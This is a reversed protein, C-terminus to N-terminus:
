SAAPEQPPVETDQDESLLERLSVGQLADFLFHAIIPLWLSGTLVYLAGFGLGVAGCNLVGKPGQYSHALGFVVSSAIVAPWLPMLLSFYWIVFGRYVIEEVVGATASVGTFYKLERDTHPLYAKMDGLGEINSAREEGGMKKIRQHVFILYGIMPALFAAGMWFGRGGPEVFGLDAFPRALQVWAALLIALFGWEWLITERYWKVRDLPKGAAIDKRIQKGEYAGYIPHAVLLLLVLVHDVIHM